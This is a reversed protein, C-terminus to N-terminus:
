KGLYSMVVRFGVNVHPDVLGPYEDDAQIQLYQKESYWGGGKTGPEGSPHVVVMESLNGSMCYLGFENPIYSSAKVTFFGGDDKFKPMMQGLSDKKMPKYNALYCGKANRIYPGGWPYSQMTSNGGNAAYMWEMDTPLRVDGTQHKVKKPDLKQIEKSLWACYM